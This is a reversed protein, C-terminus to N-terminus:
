GASSHLLRNGSIMPRPMQSDRRRPLHPRFHCFLIDDGADDSKRQMASTAVLEATNLSINGADRSMIECNVRRQRLMLM